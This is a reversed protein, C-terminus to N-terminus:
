PMVMIKGSVEGKKETQSTVIVKFLYLGADLASGDSSLAKMEIPPVSGVLSVVSSSQSSVLRGAMNFLMLQVDLRANPEDHNFSVYSVGGPVVPNPFVVVDSVALSGGSSVTFNLSSTSSNNHTDWAKLTLTHSGEELSSLQYNIYGQKYNDMEAEFYNNLVIVNTQDGDIVCAIDHGIGNGTTNIGSEDFIEALLVPSSGVKAGNSFSSSNLWLNIQPGEDDEEADNDIGGIVIDSFAGFAQVTNEDSFAYYSIKGNDFNYKIDKSVVFEIEFEGNNVSAPGKFIVNDYAEYTFPEAGDNGRTTIQSQKDFVSVFIEGNFDVRSTDYLNVVEGVLSVKSLASVSDLLEKQTDDIVKDNLKLTRMGLQPYILRIAPDGLLSFNLKNVSASINNKTQKMIEGLTYPLGDEGREFVYNYFSTNLIKNQSSYVIRTTTFLAIGGGLPNLFVEEGASTYDKDDFRSFECTATVFLALKDINNWSEIHEKTIVKEHALLSPGGHGTYNFVLTGDEIANGIDEELDPISHGSITTIKEYNDFYFKSINFEPHNREMMTTLSNADSMHINNDGDDGVFTLLSKWQDNSQEYYYKYTKDVANVAEEITNVPFRGIGIDVKDLIVNDGENDDLLGLYDDTM